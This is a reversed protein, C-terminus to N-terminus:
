LLVLIFVSFAFSVLSRSHRVVGGFYLLKFSGSERQVFLKTSPSNISTSGSQTCFGMM